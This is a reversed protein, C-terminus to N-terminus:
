SLQVFLEPGAIGGAATALSPNFAFGQVNSTMALINLTYQTFLYMVKQQALTNMMNSVKVLGTINNNANATLAQQWLTQMEVINWGDPGPYSNGPQYMPGLFDVVWPYDDIWGLAYMYLQSSFAETLMQGSPVPTLTVTLGMNYTTSVNNVAEAIDTFIAQDVTDGTSYVLNVTQQVPSSCQNHSNLTTCGFTNNFYGSPAATGNTLTFQTIPNMMASLLNDQVGTLNYSYRPTISTNYSGSPPLGPPILNTAPVSLRNAVDIMVETLNVGDAFALRLRVDSFPQFKYLSGTQPNTVNMDFPDFFTAYVSYPGYLHVGSVISTLNASSLWQQRNAVDFFTNSSIDVAMAQGSKAANQLDLIRTTDQPVYNINITKIQPTQKAGL